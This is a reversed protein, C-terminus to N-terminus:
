TNELKEAKGAKEQQRARQADLYRRFSEFERSEEEDPIIM